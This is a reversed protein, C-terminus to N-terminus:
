LSWVYTFGMGVDNADNSAGQSFTTELRTKASLRYSMSGILSIPESSTGRVKEKNIYTEKQYNGSIRASFAVTNNVSFGAGFGFSLTDGPQINSGFQDDDVIHQYGMNFFIIAPDITKSLNLDTSVGWFGSGTSLNDLDSPDVTEGTPTTVSFSTTISPSSASESKLKYSIGLSLDGIGSKSSKTVNAASIIENENYMLPLSTNIELKNTLGYSLNIPLSVSRSRNIRFSRQNEDTNYNFGVSLQIENPNLLVESERLFLRSLDHSDEDTPAEGITQKNKKERDTVSGTRNNSHHDNLNLGENSESHSREARLETNLISAILVSSVLYIVGTKRHVILKNTKSM